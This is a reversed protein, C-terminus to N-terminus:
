IRYAGPDYLETNARVWEITSVLGDDLDVSPTWGILRRAKANDSLLRDVESSTPRVRESAERVVLQKGLLGGIREALEGVSVDQGTGLNIEEGVAEESEAARLFGDATDTVFTFDRRPSLNGLVVEEGALAQSIITPIIARDSQRPGYTNFPRVIAVPLGFAAHFSRALADSAVKSGAYPSQPNKPHTEPMPVSQASGYVESTSAVVVRELGHEKAATLVNLTGLVNVGVVEGVHVYSYPIGVLAALHLVVDTGALVRSVTDLDRIDGRVIEVEPRAELLGDDNRSNYRVFATVRAGAELAREVLHSGIFGAGGTIVVRKGQWQPDTV